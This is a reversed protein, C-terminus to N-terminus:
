GARGSITESVLKTLRCHIIVMDNMMRRWVVSALYILPIGDDLEWLYVNPYKRWDSVSLRHMGYLCGIKPLM